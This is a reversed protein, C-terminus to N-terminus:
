ALTARSDSSHHAPCNPPTGSPNSIRSPIAPDVERRIRHWRSAESFARSSDRAFAIPTLLAATAICVSPCASNDDPNAEPGLNETPTGADKRSLWSSSRVTPINRVVRGTAM